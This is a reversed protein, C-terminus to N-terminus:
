LYITQNHFFISLAIIINIFLFLISGTYTKKSNRRFINYIILFISLFLSLLIFITLSGCLYEMLFDSLDLENKFLLYISIFFFVYFLIVSLIVHIKKRFIYSFLNYFPYVLVLFSVIYILIDSQNQSSLSDYSEETMVRLQEETIDSYIIKSISTAFHNLNM